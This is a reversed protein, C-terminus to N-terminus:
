GLEAVRPLVYWSPPSCPELRIIELRTNLRTINAPISIDIGYKLLRNKYKYYTGQSLRTRLDAGDRWAIALEGERGPIELYQDVHASDAIVDGFMAYVKSQMASDWLSFRWLGKQKLWRSKLTIEHRVVGNNLLWAYVGPDHLMSAESRHRIYDAAKDYVKAYFWKSGEGWSVGTTRYPRPEFKGSRFGQLYRIVQPAKAASGTQYNRTLDIRTIIAGVAQFGKDIGQPGNLPMPKPDTFPPLGFTGLVRNALRVCDIVSYGFVNDPRNFRGINGELTVRFGDCRLRLSTEFSGKHVLKQAIDLKIVGDADMFRVLGDVIIPLGGNPHVQYISLWDCFVHQM